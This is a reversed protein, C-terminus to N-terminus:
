FVVTVRQSGWIPTIKTEQFDARVISRELYTSGGNLKTINYIDLVIDLVPLFVVAATISLLYDVAGPQVFEANRFIKYSDDKVEGVFKVDSTDILSFCNRSSTMTANVTQNDTRYKNNM